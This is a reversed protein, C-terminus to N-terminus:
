DSSFTRRTSSDTCNAPTTHSDRNKKELLLRCVLHLRSQLESTHEESRFGAGAPYPRPLQRRTACVSDRHGRSETESKAGTHRCPRRNSSGVSAPQEWSLTAENHSRPLERLGAANHDPWRPTYSHEPLPVWFALFESGTPAPLEALIWPFSHPQALM